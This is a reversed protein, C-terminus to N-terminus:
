FSITDIQAKFTSGYLIRNLEIRLDIGDAESALGPYYSNQIQSDVDTTTDKFFPM